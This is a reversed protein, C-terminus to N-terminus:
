TRLTARRGSLLRVLAILVCAGIFAVVVSGWFQYTGEVFFSALLGGVFSGILGVIIDGLLGFGGGKMVVGALWGAILGVVLWSIIGGPTLVIAAYTLGM